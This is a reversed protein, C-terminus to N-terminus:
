DRREEDKKEVMKIAATPNAKVLELFVTNDGGINNALNGDSDLIRCAFSSLLVPSGKHQYVITDASSGVTYSDKSYYRSVISVVDKKNDFPTIFNNGFQAKVAILFYGFAVDADENLVSISAEIPVTDDTTAFIGKPDTPGTGFKPARFYTTTNKQVVTDVGQFGGTLEIGLTPVRKFIPVTAPLNGVTHVNTGTQSDLTWRLGDTENFNKFGLETEWFSDTFQDNSRRSSALLQTIMIGSYKDVRYTTGNPQDIIGVSISQAQYIPTHLFEWNFKSKAVDWDLVVQSAGTLPVGETLDFEFGKIAATDGTTCAVFADAASTEKLIETSGTLDNASVTGRIASFGRNIREAIDPPEYAGKEIVITESLVVPQFTKSAAPLKTIQGSPDLPGTGNFIETNEHIGAGNPAPFFIENTNASGDKNAKYIEFGFGFIDTTKYIIGAFADHINGTFGPNHQKLYVVKNQVVDNEDTYRVVVSFGGSANVSSTGQYVLDKLYYLDSTPAVEKCKIYIQDDGVFKEAPWPTAPNLPKYTPYDASVVGQNTAFPVTQYHVFEMKLTTDDQVIIKQGSVAKTDVFANRCVLSDGAEMEVFQQLNTEWDGNPKFPQTAAATKNRCEITYSSM